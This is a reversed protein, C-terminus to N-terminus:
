GDAPDPWDGDLLTENDDVGVERYQAATECVHGSMPDVVTLLSKRPGDPWPAGSVKQNRLDGFGHRRREGRGAEHQDPNLPPRRLEVGDPVM